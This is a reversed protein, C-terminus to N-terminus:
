QLKAMVSQHANPNKSRKSNCFTSCYNGHTHKHINIHMDINQINIM